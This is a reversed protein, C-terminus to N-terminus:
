EFHLIIGELGILLHLFQWLSAVEGCMCPEILGLYKNASISSFEKHNARNAIVEFYLPM